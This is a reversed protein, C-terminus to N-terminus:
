VTLNVSGQRKKQWGLGENEGFSLFNRVHTFHACQSLIPACLGILFSDLISKSQKL